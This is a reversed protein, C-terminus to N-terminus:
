SRLLGTCWECLTNPDVYKSRRDSSVQPGNVSFAAFCSPLHSIVLMLLYV